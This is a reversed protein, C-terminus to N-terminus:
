RSGKKKPALKAPAQVVPVPPMTRNILWQQAIGVLNGTLWYLVLGSSMNYFFFGFMLPMLMFMRQQSPDASPNPTMKQTIFQTIIMVVPLIHIPLTEAQSLDTVWLWHAGRLAISVALVRYFAYLIPLQVLMPLCGGMPNVGHKKYLDMVEQNQEAKKPDRLGINKYKANIAQLQPQLGQMKRASKLSSFRMPLLLVNIIVTIVVISWGYNHVWQDNIWRLILFLPKAIVGFFGWDIVQPLRPDVQKLLDIDKPGIFLSFENVADGGVAVGVHAEAKADKSANPQVDDKMTVVELTNQQSPLLVMAFFSDELGAFSFNGNATVPGNKAAKQDAVKLKSDALNFYISHQATVRNLVTTDGFGGRWELLHPVGAGNQTVESTVQALYSNRLFRFSKRVHVKTDGYEYDIGLGDATPTAKYLTYNIDVPPKGNKYTISFPPPVQTFSATNIVELPKGQSDLYKKLIWSQIVGGKNTFRVRYLNTDITFPQESSATVQPAPAATDPTAIAPVAEPKKVVAAPPPTAPTSKEAPKPGPPPKYIYPTVFLVAGMLLFAILLRLEMSLEKPKTPANPNNPLDNM